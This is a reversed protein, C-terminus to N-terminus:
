PCQNGNAAQRAGMPSPPDTIHTLGSGAQLGAADRRDRRDRGCGPPGPRMQRDRGCRATGAAGPPRGGAKQAMVVRLLGGIHTFELLVKHQEIIYKHSTDEKTFLLTGHDQILRKNSKTYALQYHDSIIHHIQSGHSFISSIECQQHRSLRQLAVCKPGPPTLWVRYAFYPPSPGLESSPGSM